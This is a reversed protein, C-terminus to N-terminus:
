KDFDREEKGRDALSREFDSNAASDWDTAMKVIDELDGVPQDKAINIITAAIGSVHDAIRKLELNVHPSDVLVWLDTAVPQQTAITTLVKAEIQSHLANINKDGSVAAECATTDLAFMSNAVRDIASRVMESLRM